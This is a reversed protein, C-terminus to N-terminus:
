KKSHKKMRKGQRKNAVRGFDNPNMKHKEKGREV